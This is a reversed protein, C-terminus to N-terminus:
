LAESESGTAPGISTALTKLRNSDSTIPTKIYLISSTNWGNSDLIKSLYISYLIKIYLETQEM